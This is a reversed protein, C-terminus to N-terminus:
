IMGDRNYLKRTHEHQEVLAYAARIADPITPQHSGDEKDTVYFGGSKVPIIALRGFAISEILAAVKQSPMFDQQEVTSLRVDTM